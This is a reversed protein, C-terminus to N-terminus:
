RVGDSKQYETLTPTQEDDDSRANPDSYESPPEVTALVPRRDASGYLYTAYLVVMM